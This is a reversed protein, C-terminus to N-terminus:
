ESVLNEDVYISANSWMVQRNSFAGILPKFYKSTLRLDTMDDPLLHGQSPYKCIYAMASIVGGVVQSTTPGANPIDYIQRSESTTMSCGCWWQGFKSSLLLVGVKDKGSATTHTIIKKHSDTLKNSINGMSKVFYKNPRYVYHVTPSYKKTSLSKAISYDENHQIIYGRIEGHGPVFSRCMVDLGPKDFTSMTVNGVQLTDLKTREHSGLSLESKKHLGEDIIGDVSWTNVVDRSISRTYTQTDVESIHITKIGLRQAMRSYNKTPAGIYRKYMRSVGLKTFHSVLGPNMGSTIITTASKPHERRFKEYHIMEQGISLLRGHQLDDDWREFSTNIFHISKTTCYKLLSITDVDVSLDIIFDGSTLNLKNLILLYNKKTIHAHIFNVGTPLRYLKSTPLKDIIYINKPSINSWRLCMHLFPGGCGGYGILLLKKGDLSLPVDRDFKEVRLIRSQM